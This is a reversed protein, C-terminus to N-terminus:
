KLYYCLVGYEDYYALGLKIEVDCVASEKLKVIDFKQKIKPLKM